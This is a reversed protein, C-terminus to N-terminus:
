LTDNAGITRRVRAVQRYVNGVNLFEPMSPISFHMSKMISIAESMVNKVDAQQKASVEIQITYLIANVGGGDLDEGVELGSMVHFYVTPFLAQTTNLDTDTIYLDSYKSKLAKNLKTKFITFIKNDLQM